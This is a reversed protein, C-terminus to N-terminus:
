HSLAIREPTDLCIPQLCCLQLGRPNYHIEHPKCSQSKYLQDTCLFQLCQTNILLCVQTFHISRHSIEFNNHILCLFFYIYCKVNHALQKAEKIRFCVFLCLLFLLPHYWYPFRLPWYPTSGDFTFLIDKQSVIFCLINRNICIDFWINSSFNPIQLRHFM